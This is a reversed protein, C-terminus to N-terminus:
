LPFLRITLLTLPLPSADCDYRSYQQSSTKPTHTIRHNSRVCLLLQRSREFSEVISRAAVVVVVVIFLGTEPCKTGRVDTGRRFSSDRVIHGKSTVTLTKFNPISFICVAILTITLLQTLTQNLTLTVGTGRDRLLIIQYWDLPLARRPLGLDPTASAM